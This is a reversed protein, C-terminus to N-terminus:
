FPENAHAALWESLGPLPFSLLNQVKACDLSTDAPRPAGQYEKRSNREIKPNLQPWRDAILQAIQVRSLRESGALHFLGTTQRSALEWLPTGNCGRFDPM